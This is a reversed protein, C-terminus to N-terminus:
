KRSANYLTNDEFWESESFRIENQTLNGEMALKLLADSNKRRLCRTSYSFKGKLPFPAYNGQSNPNWKGQKIALESSKSLLAFKEKKEETTYFVADLIEMNSKSRLFIIDYNVGVCRKGNEFFLDRMQPKSWEGKDKALNEGTENEFDVGDFTRLHFMIKEGAKVECPPIQYNSLLSSYQASHLELGGLNGDTLATLIIYECKHANKTNTYGGQVEEIILIPVRSNHGDFPLAFTLSNGRLDAIEGFLQYREGVKTKRAFEYVVSKGDDLISACVDMTDHSIQDLSAREGAELKSVIANKSKVAKSFKVELSKDDITRVSTIEPSESADLVKIGESTIKCGSHSVCLMTIAVTAACFLAYRVFGNKENTRKKM